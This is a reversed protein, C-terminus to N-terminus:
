TRDDEQSRDLTTPYKGKLLNNEFKLLTNKLREVMIEQQHANNTRDQQIANALQRVAETLAKIDQKIEKIDSTNAETQGKLALLEKSFQLLKQWM